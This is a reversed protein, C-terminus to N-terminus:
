NYQTNDQHVTVIHSKVWINDPPYLLGEHLRVGRFNGTTPYLFHLSSLIYWHEILVCHFTKTSWQRENTTLLECKSPDEGRLGSPENYDIM